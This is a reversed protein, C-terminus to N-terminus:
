FLDARALSRPVPADRSAGRQMMAQLLVVVAVLIVAIAALLVWPPLDPLRPKVPDLYRLGPRRGTGGSRSDSTAAPTGDGRVTRPFSLKIVDVSVRVVVPQLVQPEQARVTM